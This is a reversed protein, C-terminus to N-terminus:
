TGLTLQLMSHGLGVIEDKEQHCRHSPDYTVDVFCWRQSPPFATELKKEMMDM